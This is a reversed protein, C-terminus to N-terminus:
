VAFWENKYNHRSPPHCAVSWGRFGTLKRSQQRAAHAADRMLVDRLLCAERCLAESAGQAAAAARAQKSTRPLPLCLNTPDLPRFRRGEPSLPVQNLDTGGIAGQDGIAQRRNERLLEYSNRLGNGRGTSVFSAGTQRHHQGPFDPSRWRAAPGLIRVPRSVSTCSPRHSSVGRKGLRGQYPPEAAPALGVVAGPTRATLEPAQSMRTPKARPTGIHSRDLGGLNGDGAEDGRCPVATPQRRPGLCGGPVCSTDM